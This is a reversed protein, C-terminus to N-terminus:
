RASDTLRALPGRGPECGAAEWTERSDYWHDRAVLSFQRESVAAGSARLRAVCQRLSSDGTVEPLEGCRALTTLLDGCRVPEPHGAHLIRARPGEDNLAFCTILRALDVVHVLSLLARGGDWLTPVATLLRALTPVVWEDGPGLILAPRLVTAGAALAYGEAVLRTRSAPSVPAPPVGDVAIGRHPGPGYVATTSLHVIRRVGYRSADAMLARTGEINVAACREEDSSLSAALHLLVDVGECVGRVTEPATLDVPCWEDIGGPERRSVARLIPGRGGADGRRRRELEGLVASGVFGTPGVVAVRPVGRM